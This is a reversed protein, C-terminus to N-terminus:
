SRACRRGRARQTPSRVLVDMTGLGKEVVESEGYVRMEGNSCIIRGPFNRARLYHYGEVGEGNMGSGIHHDLVMADYRTSGIMRIADPVALAYDSEWGDDGAMWAEYLSIIDVNDDVFLARKRVDRTPHVRLTRPVLANLGARVYGFVCCINGHIGSTTKISGTEPRAISVRGEADARRHGRARGPARGEPDPAADRQRARGLPTGFGVPGNDPRGQVM